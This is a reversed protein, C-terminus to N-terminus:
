RKNLLIRLIFIFIIFRILICVPLTALSSTRLQLFKKSLLFDKLESIKLGLKFWEFFVPFMFDVLIILSDISIFLIYIMVIVISLKQLEAKSLLESKKHDIGSKNMLDYSAWWFLTLLEEAYCHPWFIQENSQVSSMFIFFFASRM